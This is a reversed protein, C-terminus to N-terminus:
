RCAARSRWRPRSADPPCTVWDWWLSLGCTILWLPKVAQMVKEFGRITGTYTLYLHELVEAMCWKELPHWTLQESSMGEVASDLAQKLTELRSDM